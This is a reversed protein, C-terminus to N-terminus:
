FLWPVGPHESCFPKLTTGLFYSESMLLAVSLLDTQPNTVEVHLRLFSGSEGQPNLSM